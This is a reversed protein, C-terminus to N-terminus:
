PKLAIIAALANAIKIAEKGPRMVQYQNRIDVEKLLRDIAIEVTKDQMGSRHLMIHQLASFPHQYGGVHFQFFHNRAPCANSTGELKFNIYGSQWTWYMGKTPDLDGELAGSVNTASDIGLDINLGDFTLQGPNNIPMKTSSPVSVDILQYPRTSITIQKKGKMFRVNSIYLRINEFVLSDGLDSSYYVKGPVIKEGGFTFSFQLTDNSGRTFISVFCLIILAIHSKM